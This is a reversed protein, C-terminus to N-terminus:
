RVAQLKHTFEDNLRTKTNSDIKKKLAGEAESVSSAVVQAKLTAMARQFEFHALAETEDGARKAAEHADRVIKMRLAEAEAEADAISKQANQELQRLQVEVDYHKREAEVKNQEAKKRHAEFQDARETFHQRIPKKVIFILLGIFLSFNILQPVILESWPIEAHEHM